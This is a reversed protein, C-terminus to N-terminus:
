VDGGVRYCRNATTCAQYDTEIEVVASAENGELDKFTVKIEEPNTTFMFGTINMAYQNYYFVVWDGGENKDQWFFHGDRDSHCEVQPQASKYRRDDGFMQRCTLEPPSYSEILESLQTAEIAATVVAEDSPATYDAYQKLGVTFAMVVIVVLLAMQLAQKIKNM